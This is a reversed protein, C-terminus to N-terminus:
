LSEAIARGFAARAKAMEFIGLALRIEADVRLGEADALEVSTGLGAKFRADAQAYNAGAADLERQLSPLAQRAVDVSLYAREVNAVLQQRALDVEERRVQEARVSAGRRASITPDFLPWSLILGADWNPVNPLGGNGFPVAPGGGATSASPTAGGARETFSASLQLDPRMRAAIAHTEQEQARLRATVEGLRPDNAEARRLADPLAPLDTAIPPANAADLAPDSAGVAAALVVQAAALGGRARIRGTDFRTLEAEARTLEIPSRLGSRVGARAFDRHVRAREYADESARLVSKAANVAFFAEEVDLEIDLRLTDAAHEAVVVQADAAAAQAAIRGFDFVEQSAGMGVLTSTHPRWSARSGITSPTGGIRPVDVVDTSLYSATTNNTTGELIQGSLGAFPYWAARPVGANARQEAVRAVSARVAPQHARAYAIAEPLTVARVGLAPAGSTADPPSTVGRAPSVEAARARPGASALVAAAGLLVWRRRGRVFLM